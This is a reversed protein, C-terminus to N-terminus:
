PKFQQTFERTLDMYASGYLQSPEIYHGEVWENFSNVYLWDPNSRLASDFTARYFAGDERDRKFAHAPIRVYDQGRCDARTDDWGPMITAVWLKQRGTQEEMARVGNAYATAKQHANPIGKHTVRFTYLGDFVELYPLKSNDGEAIWWASRSPDVQSRVSAWAQIPTQGPLAPVRQMDVFFLVPREEVTLFNPHGGYTEVIYRLAAVVDQQSPAQTFFHQESVITSKFGSGESEALLTAFNRDTTSGPGIWHLTFGDIGVELAADVHRAIAGPDDSSYPQLPRDGTSINCDDWSNMGFWSFYDALVLASVPSSSVPDVTPEPSPTASAPVDPTYPETPTASETPPADSPSAAVSATPTATDSTLATAVPSSRAIPAATAPIETAPGASADIISAPRDFMIWVSAALVCAVVAVALAALLTTCTRARIVADDPLWLQSGQVYCETHGIQIRDANQLVHLQIRTGNVYTGNSSRADCLVPGAPDARIEAHHKSVYSDHPYSVTNGPHRGFTITGHGLTISKM